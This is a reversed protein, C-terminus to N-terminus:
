ENSNNMKIEIILEEIPQGCIPCKNSQLRLDNAYMHRCPLVATDKSQTMCVVCDDFDPATSSGIGYLERLEYRVDDIWLIQRVVKVDQAPLSRSLYDLEFFGLDIGTGSAQCFEQGTGKQFPFTIPEFM